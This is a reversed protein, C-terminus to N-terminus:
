QQGPAPRPHPLLLSMSTTLPCSRSPSSGNPGMGTGQHGVGVVVQSAQKCVQQRPQAACVICLAQRGHGEESPHARNWSPQPPTVTRKAGSRGQGTCFAHQGQTGRGATASGAWRAAGAPPPSGPVAGCRAPRGQAWPASAPDAPGRGSPASSRSPSPTTPAHRPRPPAPCPSPSGRTGTVAPAGRSWAAARVEPRAPRPHGAARPRRAPPAASPGAAAAPAPAAGSRPAAAGGGAVGPRRSGRGGRRGTKGM